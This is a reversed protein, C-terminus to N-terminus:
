LKTVDKVHEMIWNNYTKVNTYVGPIGRTACGIGWSVIGAICKRDNSSRENNRESPGKKAANHLPTIGNKSRLNNDVVIKM